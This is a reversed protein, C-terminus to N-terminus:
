RGLLVLRSYRLSKDLFPSHLIAFPALGSWRRGHARGLLEGERAVVSGCFTWFSRGLRSSRSTTGAVGATPAVAIGTRAAYATWSQLGPNPSHPPKQPPKPAQSPALLRSCCCYLSSLSPHSGTPRFPSISSEEIHQTVESVQAKRRNVHQCGACAQVAAASSFVSSHTHSWHILQPCNDGGYAAMM